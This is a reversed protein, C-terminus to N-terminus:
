YVYYNAQYHDMFDVVNANLAILAMSLSLAATAIGIAIHAPRSKQLSMSM